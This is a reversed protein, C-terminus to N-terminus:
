LAPAWRGVSVLEWPPSLRRKMQERGNPSGPIASTRTPRQGGAGGGGAREAYFARQPGESAAEGAYGAYRYGKGRDKKSKEALLMAM